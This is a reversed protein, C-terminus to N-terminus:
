VALFSDCEDMSVLVWGFLPYDWGCGGVGLWSITMGVWLQGCGALFLDSEGVGM